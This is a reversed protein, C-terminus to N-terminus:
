MGGVYATIVRKVITEADLGVEKHLLAVNGHEVYEDPLAINLVKMDFDRDNVYELVHDGFGGNRVNEELTVLLKHQKAVEELMQEDIPKVFRANILTCNYGTDKLADRVQEATKVMSGVAM